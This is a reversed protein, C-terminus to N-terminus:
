VLGYRLLALVIRFKSARVRARPPAFGRERLRALIPRYAMAMIMPARVSKRPCRAMIALAERFHNEARLILPACADALAPHALVTQPTTEDIGAATLAERPLYLRGIGADEDLDRLINTLQLARGLHHALPGGEQAPVGFVRVSLRGVASAVRDCYLDLTAFDPARIDADVDMEMGDIVALFDERRLDFSSIAAALGPTVNPALSAAFAQPPTGAYLADIDSRWQALAAKRAPAPGGDDAIDDVARCFSYIEFMAERQAPPLIRMAAYFSSGRSHAAADAGANQPEPCAKAAGAQANAIM